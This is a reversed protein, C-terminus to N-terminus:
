LARHRRLRPLAWTATPRSISRAPASRPSAPTLTPPLSPRPEPVSRASPARGASSTAFRCTWQRHPLIGADRQRDRKRHGLHRHDRRERDTTHRASITTMGTYSNAGSLDLIGPGTTTLTQPGSIVGGLTLQGADQEFTLSAGLTIPNNFSNAASQSDIGLGVSGTITIADGSISYGGALEIEAVSLGAIDDANTLQSEGAGFVLISGTTPAAAGQWNTVTSWNSNAGAGTWTFTSSPVVRLELDEFQLILEHRGKARRRHRYGPSSRKHLVNLIPFRRM